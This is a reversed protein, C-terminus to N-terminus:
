MKIQSEIEILTVLLHAIALTHFKQIRTEFRRTCINQLLTLNFNIFFFM